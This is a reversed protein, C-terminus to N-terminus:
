LRILCFHDLHQNIIELVYLDSLAPACEQFMKLKCRLFSISKNSEKPNDSRFLMMVWYALFTFFLIKNPRSFNLIVFSLNVSLLFRKGFILKLFHVLFSDIFTIM